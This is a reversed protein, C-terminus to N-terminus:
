FPFLGPGERQGSAAPFFTGGGPGGHGAMRLTQCTSDTRRASQERTEERGVRRKGGVRNLGLSPDSVGKEEGFDRVQGGRGRFHRDGGTVARTGDPRAAAAAAAAHFHRRRSGQFPTEHLEAATLAFPRPMKPFECNAANTLFLDLLTRDSGEPGRRHIGSGTVGWNM